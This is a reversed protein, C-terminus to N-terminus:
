DDAVLVEGPAAKRREMVWAEDGKSTVFLKIRYEWGPMLPIPAPGEVGPAWCGVVLVTDDPTLHSRRAPVKEVALEIGDKYPRAVAM